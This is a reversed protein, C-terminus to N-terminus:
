HSQLAVLDQAFIIYELRQVLFASIAITDHIIFQLVEVNINNMKM